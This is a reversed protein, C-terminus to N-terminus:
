GREFLEYRDIVMRLYEGDLCIMKVDTYKKVKILWHWKGDIKKPLWLRVIKYDVM